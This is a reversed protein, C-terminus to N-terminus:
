LESKVMNLSMEKLRNIIANMEKSINLIINAATKSESANNKSIEAAEVTQKAALQIQELAINMENISIKLRDTKHMVNDLMKM